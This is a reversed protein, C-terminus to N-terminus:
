KPPEPLPMWHTFENSEFPDFVYFGKEDKEDMDDEFVDFHEAWIFAQQEDGWQAVVVRAYRGFDCKPRLVVIPTGDKPATEIPQWESM